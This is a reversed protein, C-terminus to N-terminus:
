KDSSRSANFFYMSVAMLYQTDTPSVATCALSSAGAQCRVYRTTTTIANYNDDTNDDDDDNNVSSAGRCHVLLQLLLPLQGDPHVEGDVVVFEVPGVDGLGEGL